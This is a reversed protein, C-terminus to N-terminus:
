DNEHPLQEIGESFRGEHSEVETEPDEIGRSFRGEPEDHTHEADAGRAFDPQLEEEPSDPKHDIGEAFGDDDGQNPGAPHEHREM